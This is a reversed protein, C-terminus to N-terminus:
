RNSNHLFSNVQSAIARMDMDKICRYGRCGIDFCPRCWVPRYIIKKMLGASTVAEEITLRGIKKVRYPNKSFPNWVTASTTGLFIVCNTPVQLINTVGANSGICMIAHGSISLLEWISYNKELYVIKKKEVYRKFENINPQNIEDMIVVTGEFALANILRAYMQPSPGRFKDFGAINVLIYPPKVDFDAPPAMKSTLDVYDPVDLDLGLSEKILRLAATVVNTGSLEVSARYSYDLLWSWISINFGIYYRCLNEKRVQLFTSLGRIGILDLYIDYSPAANKNRRLYGCSILNVFIKKIFGATSPPNDVIVKTKLFDKLLFDNYRSTLVTVDFRKNLELLLPLSIIADGLRDARNVLMTKLGTADIKNQKVFFALALRGLIKMVASKFM